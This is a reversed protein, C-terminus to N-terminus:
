RDKDSMKILTLYESPSLRGDGDTDAKSFNSALWDSAKAESASIYSDADKDLDTFAPVEGKDGAMVSGCMGTFAILALLKKM